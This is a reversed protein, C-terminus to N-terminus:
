SIHYPLNKVFAWGLGVVAALALALIIAIYTLKRKIASRTSAGM